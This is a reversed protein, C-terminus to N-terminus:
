AVAVQFDASEFLSRVLMLEDAIENPKARSELILPAQRPLLPVIEQFALKAAYSIREHQSASNVESVHVQVLKSGFAKLMLYAETMSADCQRAHGIDFCFRAEPLLDFVESLEGVTRGMPKRRDMNEIAIREGFVRWVSFDGITDPHLIIPWSHPVRSFLYEALLEEESRVIASPAHFSIYSYRELELRDLASILVQVERPRLASLEISDMAFDGLIELAADFDGLALAGTSFGIHKM